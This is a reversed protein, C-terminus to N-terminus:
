TTASVGPGTNPDNDQPVAAGRPANGRRRILRERVDSIRNRSFVFAIQTINWMMGSLLALFFGAGLFGSLQAFSPLHGHNVIRFLALTLGSMTMAQMYFAPVIKALFGIWVICTAITYVCLFLVVYRPWPLPKAPRGSVLTEVHRAIRRPQEGLNTVGLMDALVWYGDFRFVPNLTYLMSYIGLCVATRLPEWHTSHYLLMIAASAILQFYCGALDVVVRQWRRLRWAASVDSYFSPYLLYVVFGISRPRQGFRSCATAHGLEHFLLLLLFLITAPITGSGLMHISIGTERFLSLSALIM